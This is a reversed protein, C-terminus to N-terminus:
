EKAEKQKTHIKLKHLAYYVDRLLDDQKFLGKQFLAAAQGNIRSREQENLEKATVVIIPIRRMERDRKLVELVAFGDMGPMMLDLVVLDPVQQQIMEIGERGDSAELVEYTEGSSELMRRLLHRDETTDDLVLVKQAQESDQAQKDALRALAGLLRDASIPKLLYDAAGM